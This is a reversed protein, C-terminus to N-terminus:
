PSFLDLHCSARDAGFILVPPLQDGAFKQIALIVEPDPPPITLALSRAYLFDKIWAEVAIIDGQEPKLAVGVIEGARLERLILM